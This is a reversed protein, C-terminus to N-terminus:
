ESLTVTITAIVDATLTHDSMFHHIVSNEGRVTHEVMNPHLKAFRTTIEIGRTISLTAAEVATLDTFQNVTVGMLTISIRFLPETDVEKAKVWDSMNIIEATM